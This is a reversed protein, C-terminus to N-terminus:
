EYSPDKAAQELFDVVSSFNEYPHHLLIDRERIAAFMDPREQLASVHPPRDFGKVAIEGLDRFAFETATVAHTSSCVLIRGTENGALKELRAALVVPEGVLSLGQPHHGGFAQITVAGTALAWDMLLPFGAVEWVAPDAVIAQAVRDLELAAQCAAIAQTGDCGGEWFALVADGPYEKVTGGREVITSTLIGFVRSISQQLLAFSYGMFATTGTFEPTMTQWTGLASSGDIMVGAGLAAVHHSANYVGLVGTNYWWRLATSGKYFNVDWGPLLTNLGDAPGSGSTTPIFSSGPLTLDLYIGGFINTTPVNINLPGSYVVSADAKQATMAVATGLFASCALFHRNLKTDLQKPLVPTKM